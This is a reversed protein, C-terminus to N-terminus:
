APPLCTPNVKSALKLFFKKLSTEQLRPHDNVTSVSLWEVTLNIIALTHTGTKNWNMKATVTEERQKDENLFNEFATSKPHLFYLKRAATLVLGQLQM